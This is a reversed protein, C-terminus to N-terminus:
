ARGSACWHRHRPVAWGARREEAPRRRHLRQCGIPVRRSCPTPPEEDALGEACSAASLSSDDSCSPREQQQEQEAAAAAAAAELSRIEKTAELGDVRPM